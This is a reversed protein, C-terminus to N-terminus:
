GRHRKVTSYCSLMNPTHWDKEHWYVDKRSLSIHDPIVGIELCKREIEDSVKQFKFLCVEGVSDVYELLTGGLKIEPFNPDLVHEKVQVTKM